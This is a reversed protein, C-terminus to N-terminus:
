HVDVRDVMVGLNRDDSTGLLQHPNWVTSVLKLQAPEDRAAAAAALAPPLALAYPRFGSGVDITGLLVDDFFVSVRAPAAQKPRGGDHMTLVVERERGTLGPIAVYSTPGTWRVTRGETREKAYFRLVNLDDEYGVDLAFGGAASVTGLSLEYVSFDFDKRDIHRPFTDWPTVDFEPVKIRDDEVPTALIHRSLLATGGGGIFFVRAYRNLADALFSEFKLTDPRAPALVLVNRAYIYALPVALVHTDANTDRSEVIVLDRPTFRAALREVAPILGAYEVHPLIPAAAAQYQWGLVGVLVLGALPRALRWGRPRPTLTGFAAAGAFLLAGPLIVPLYHRAMWFHVAVVHVKYFFFVSFGSFVVLFAPARWFDRGTVLVFGALALVLGLPLLYFRTFTRLAYADYDTLRGGPHRIFLAYIAAVVIVAILALPIARRVRDLHRRRLSFALGFLAVLTAAGAAVGAPPLNRLWVAPLAAYQRMPGAMYPVFAALAAAVALVFGWRPRRGDVVWLLAAAAGLGAVILVADFRLFLLLGVLAGATLGFFGDAEDNARAFALLAAFLLAQMVIDSNPYRAFWVEAVNLGLLLAAAAAAARGMLRAGAFYVALLGVIAWVGATQRAGSLGNVGYGIAMSAPFLHPFQGIVTGADPDQVYFGMFRLSYYDATGSFPFFLSRTAAPVAAVTPDHIVLSGRQAIQVGENVYVGPDKGGMIYESSPFFRWVGLAVLVIPVLVTWGPRAAEGRYALRGRLAVLLLASLAGNAALLRGFTYVGAAALVLVVLLSWALSLTVHWFVREGADLRGRRARQGVPTRFLLAGPLYGVGLAALVLAIM